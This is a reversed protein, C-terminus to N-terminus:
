TLITYNAVVPVLVYWFLQKCFPSRILLSSNTLLYVFGLFAFVVVGSYIVTIWSRFCCSLFFNLIRSCFLCCLLLKDCLWCGYNVCFAVYTIMLLLWNSLLRYDSKFYVYCLLVLYWCFLFNVIYEISRVM